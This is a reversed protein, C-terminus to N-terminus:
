FGNFFVDLQWWREGAYLADSISGKSMVGGMGDM